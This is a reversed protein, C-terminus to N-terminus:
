KLVLKSLQFFWGNDKLFPRNESSDQIEKLKERVKGFPNEEEWGEVTEQTIGKYEGSLLKFSFLYLANKKRPIHVGSKQYHENQSKRERDTMYRWPTLARFGEKGTVIYDCQKGEPNNSRDTPKKVKTLKAIRVNTETKELAIALRAKWVSFQGGLGYEAGHKKQIAIIAIGNNLNAHIESITSGIKYFEDYVELYDIVNIGDPLLVDQFDGSRNIFQVDQHLPYGITEEWELIEEPGMESNFYRIGATLMEDLPLRTGERTNDKVREREKAEKRERQLTAGLTTLIFGTKGANSTGAVLIISGPYIQALEGIGLPFDLSFAKQNDGSFSLVELECNIIRWTGAKEAIKKIKGDKCLREMVKSRAKRESRTILSFERDIDSNTITGTHQTVYNKIQPAIENQEGTKGLLLTTVTDDLTTLHRRTDDIDDIDDLKLSEKKSISEVIKEVDKQSLPPNYGLNVGMCMTLVEQENMGNAFYKGAIRTLSDDRCGETVSDLTIQKKPLVPTLVSFHDYPFKALDDWNGYNWQLRYIAGTPHISPAAVIYGGEGRLDVGPRVGAGQPVPKGNRRYIMQWGRGTQQYLNTKPLNTKAWHIAEPTDLDVVGIGSIEGTVIGINADPWKDFWGDVEGHTALRTQYEKWDILPKKEAPRIPIVSLGNELYEIAADRITTM